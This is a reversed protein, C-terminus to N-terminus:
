AHYTHSQMLHDKFVWMTAGSPDQFGVKYNELTPGLRHNIENNESVLKPWVQQVSAWEKYFARCVWIQLHGHKDGWTKQWVDWSMTLWCRTSLKAMSRKLLTQFTMFPLHLVSTRKSALQICVAHNPKNKSSQERLCHWCLGQTNEPKLENMWQRGTLEWVYKQRSDKNRVEWTTVKIFSHQLKVDCM